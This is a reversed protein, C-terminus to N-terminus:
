PLTEATLVVLIQPNGGESGSFAMSEGSKLKGTTQWQYHSQDKYQFDGKSEVVIIGDKLTAKTELHIGDINMRKSVDKNRIGKSPTGISVTASTGSVLTVRPSSIMVTRKNAQVTDLLKAQEKASLFQIGIEMQGKGMPANDGFKELSAFANRDPCEIVRYSLRISNAETEGSKALPALPPAEQARTEPSQAPVQTSLFGTSFLGLALLLIGRKGKM